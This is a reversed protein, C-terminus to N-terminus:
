HFGTSNKLQGSSVLIDNEGLPSNKAHFLGPEGAEKVFKWTVDSDSDNITDPSLIDAINVFVDNFCM